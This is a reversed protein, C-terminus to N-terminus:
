NKRSLVGFRCQNAQRWSVSPALGSSNRPAFDTLFGEGPQPQPTALLPADTSQRCTLIGIKDSCHCGPGQTLQACVIRSDLGAKISNSASGLWLLLADHWNEGALSKCAAEFWRPKRPHSSPISAVAAIV